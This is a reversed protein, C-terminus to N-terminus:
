STSYAAAAAPAIDRRDAHAVHCRECSRIIRAEVAPILLALQGGHRHRRAQAAPVQSRHSLQPSFRTRSEAAAAAGSDGVSDVRGHFARRRGLWRPWPRLRGRHLEERARDLVDRQSAARDFHHNGITHDVPRDVLLPERGGSDAPPPQESPVPVRTEDPLALVSVTPRPPSRGMGGPCCRGAVDGLFLSRTSHASVGFRLDRRDLM